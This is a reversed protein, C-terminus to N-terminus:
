NILRVGSSTSKAVWTNLVLNSYESWGNTSNRQEEALRSQMSQAEAEDATLVYLTPGSGTLHTCIGGLQELRKAIFKLEPKRAFVVSEFANGFTKGITPPTGTELERACKKASIRPTQENKSEDYANYVEATQMGFLKPGVILYSLIRQCDVKSLVDGRHIGIQTGGDIFFPVDAGLQSAMQKLEFDSSKEDFWKNLALLTAAANGSGGGMGGAVPVSKKLKVTIKYNTDGAFNNKFLNAAKSILNNQDSPVDAKAGAYEISAIELSFGSAREFEFILEDELDVTQMLTEVEHYGGPLDGLIDFTLNLKGPSRARLTNYSPPMM